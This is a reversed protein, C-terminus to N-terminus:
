KIGKIFDNYDFEGSAKVFIEFEKHREVLSFAEKGIRQIEGTYYDCRRCYIGCYGVLKKEIDFSLARM